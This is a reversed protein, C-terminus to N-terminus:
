GTLERASPGSVFEIKDSDALWDRYYRSLKGYSNDAVFVRKELLSSLIMAHLRDTYVAEYDNFHRVARRIQIDRLSRWLRESRLQLRTPGIRNQWKRIVRMALWDLPNYLDDWDFAGAEPQTSPSGTWDPRGSWAERDRRVVHLVGKSRTAGAGDLLPTAWLQHAMDPMPGGHARAMAVFDVSARDRVFIHLDRHAAFRRAATDRREDNDFHVSQPFIVIRNRPYRDIVIERFEQSTPYLDGLNGGGHMVIITDKDVIRDMLRVNSKFAAAPARVVSTRCFDNISFEGVVKHGCNSLFANTGAHILFDGINMNMPYDLYLVPRGVPIVENLEAHRSKLEEMVSAHTRSISGM